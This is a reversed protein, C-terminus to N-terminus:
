AKACAKGVTQILEGNGKEPSSEIKKRLKDGQSLLFAKQTGMSDKIDGKSINIVSPVIHKISINGM